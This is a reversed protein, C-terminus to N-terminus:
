LNELHAPGAKLYLKPLVPIARPLRATVPAYPPFRDGPKAMEREEDNVARAVRQWVALRAM